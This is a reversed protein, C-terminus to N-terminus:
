FRIGYQEFIANDRLLDKRKWQHYPTGDAEFGLNVEEVYCDIEYPQFKANDTVQFGMEALISHLNRHCQTMNGNFEPPM